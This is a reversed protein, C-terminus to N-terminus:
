RKWLKKWKRQLHVLFDIMDFNSDINHIQRTENHQTTTSSLFLLYIVIAACTMLKKM